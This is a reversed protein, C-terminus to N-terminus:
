RRDRACSGQSPDGANPGGGVVKFARKTLSSEFKGYERAAASIAKRTRNLCPECAEVGCGGGACADPAPRSPFGELVRAMVNQPSSACRECAYGNPGSSGVTELTRLIKALPALMSVTESGYGIEWVGILEIRLASPHRALLRLAGVLCRRDTLDQRGRCARCQIQITRERYAGPCEKVDDDTEREHSRSL